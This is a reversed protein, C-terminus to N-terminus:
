KIILKIKEDWQSTRLNAIYVGPKVKDDLCFEAFGNGELIEHFVIRGSFDTLTIDKITQQPNNLRVSFTRNHVPNPYIVANKITKQIDNYGENISTAIIGEILELETISVWTGSYAYGGTVVLRIYRATVPQIIDTIPQASSKNSTRDIITQFGDDPSNSAEIRYQYARSQYTYVKAGSFTIEEGLDIIVWQPFFEASWRYDDTVNGDLLNSAYNPIQQNSFSHIAKGPEVHVMISDTLDGYVTTIYVMCSDVLLGANVTGDNDVIAVTSDSTSWKISRTTTNSPTLTYSLRSKQGRNLKLVPENISVGTVYVTEVPGTEGVYWTQPAHPNPGPNEYKVTLVPDIFVNTSCNTVTNGFVYNQQNLNCWHHGLIGYDACDSVTNNLVYVGTGWFAIGNNWGPKEGGSVNYVINDEVWIDRSENLRYNRTNSHCADNISIAAQNLQNPNNSSPHVDHIINGKVTAHFTEGKINIAEGLGNEYIKCGEIRIYECNDPFNSWDSSYAGRGVYIGEGYAPEYLGTHHIECNIVDVYNSSGHINLGSKGVETIEINHLIIHHSNRNIDPGSFGKKFVLGDIVVYSSNNIRLPSTSTYSSSSVVVSRATQAKIVLPLSESFHRNEILIIGYDGGEVLLTDGGVAFNIAIQLDSGAPVNVIRAVALGNLILLLLLAVVVQKKM